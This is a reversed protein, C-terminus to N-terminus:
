GQKAAKPAAGQPPDHRDLLIAAVRQAAHIGAEAPSEERQRKARRVKVPPKRVRVGQWSEGASARENQVSNVARRIQKM